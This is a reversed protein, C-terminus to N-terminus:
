TGQPYSLEFIDESRSFKHTWAPRNWACGYEYGLICTDMKHCINKEAMTVALVYGFGCLYTGLSVIARSFIDFFVRNSFGAFLRMKEVNYMYYAIRAVSIKSNERWFFLM